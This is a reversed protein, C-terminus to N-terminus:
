MTHRNHPEQLLKEFDAGRPIVSWRNLMPHSAYYHTKIQVMSLTEAVGPMQYVDRCFNLLAPTHTVSRTNTKFYVIYIEDFRVLTVFLRIDALTLKNGALFRRGQLIGDVHDFTKTLDDIAKDYAAQTTAFGCRYVGATPSM